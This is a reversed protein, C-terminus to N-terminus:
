DETRVRTPELDVIPGVLFCPGPDQDGMTCKPGRLADLVRVVVDLHTTPTVKVHYGWSLSRIAAEREAIATLAEISDASLTEGDNMTVRVNTGDIVVRAASPREEDDFWTRPLDVPIQVMSGNHIAVLSVRMGANWRTEYLVDIVYEFPLDRDAAIELDSAEPSGRTVWEILDYGIGRDLPALFKGEWYIADRGLLLRPEHDVSKRRRATSIPPEVGRLRLARVCADSTGRERCRRLAVPLPAVGTMLARGLRRLLPQDVGDRELVALAFFTLTDDHLLVEGPDLVGLRAFGCADHIIRAQEESDASVEYARMAAAPDATCVRLNHMFMREDYPVFPADWDMPRYSRRLVRVYSSPLGPCAVGLARLAETEASTTRVDRELAETLALLAAHDCGLTTPRAPTCGALLTLTLLGAACSSLGRRRACDLAFASVARHPIM